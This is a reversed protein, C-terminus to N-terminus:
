LKKIEFKPVIKFASIAWGNVYLTIFRGEKKRYFVDFELVNDEKKISNIQTSVDSKGKYSLNDYRTLNKIRFVIKQNDVAEIIGSKPELIEYNEDIYQDYLLPAKLFIEEDIIQNLWVGTAPFHKTFFFQPTTDFYIPSFMKVWLGQKNVTAGAGWTVDKLRWTGDIMVSNWAHDIRIKKRGIDDLTTKSMGHIIDSQLGVLTALHNFLLSYGDCVALHKKFVTTITTNKIEQIKLDKELQTKYSITKTPKPNLWSKVDYSINLAMWTFIARSKDYESTFDKQIQNGLEKRSKFHKPYKLVISDVSNYKQSYIGSSFLLNLFLFTFFIKKPRM